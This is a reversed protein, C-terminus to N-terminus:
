RKWGLEAKGGRGASAVPQHRGMLDMYGEIRRQPVLSEHIWIAPVYLDGRSSGTTGMWRGVSCAPIRIMTADRSVRCQTQTSECNLAEKLFCLITILTCRSRLNSYKGLVGPKAYRTCCARNHSENGLSVVACTAPAEHGACIV